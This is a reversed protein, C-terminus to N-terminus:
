QRAHDDGQRLEGLHKRVHRLKAGLILMDVEVRSRTLQLGRELHGLAEERTRHWGAPATHLHSEERDQAQVVFGQEDALSVIGTCIILSKGNRLFFARYLQEGENYPDTQTM